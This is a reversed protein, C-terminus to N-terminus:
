TKRLRPTWCRSSWARWAGHAQRRGAHHPVPRPTTSVATPTSKLVRIGPAAAESGGAETDSTARAKGRRTTSM